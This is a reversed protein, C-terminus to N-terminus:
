RSYPAPIEFIWDAKEVKVEGRPFNAQNSFPEGSQLHGLSEVKEVDRLNEVTYAPKHIGYIFQKEPTVCTRISM